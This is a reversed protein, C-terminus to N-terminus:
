RLGQLLTEADGTMGSIFTIKDQAHTSPCCLLLALLVALLSLMLRGVVPQMVFPVLMCLGYAPKGPYTDLQKILDSHRRFRDM